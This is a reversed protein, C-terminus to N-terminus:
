HEHNLRKLTEDIARTEIMKRVEASMEPLMDFCKTFGASFATIYVSDPSAKAELLKIQARLDEDVKSLRIRQDNVEKEHSLLSVQMDQLKAVKQEVEQRKLEYSAALERLKQEHPEKLKALEAEFWADVKKKLWNM